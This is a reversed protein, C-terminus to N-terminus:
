TDGPLSSSRVRPCKSYSYPYRNRLHFMYVPNAVAALARLRSASPAAQVGNM